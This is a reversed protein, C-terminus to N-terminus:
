GGVMPPILTIKEASPDFSRVQERVSKGTGTAITTFALHANKGTLENFLDRAEDVTHTAEPNKTAAKPDDWVALAHGTRNLVVMQGM